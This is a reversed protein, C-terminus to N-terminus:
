VSFFMQIAQRTLEAVPGPFVGMLLTGLLCIVMGFYAPGSTTVKEEYIPEDAYMVRAVTLYYFAAVMSMILALAALWLHGAEVAGTFIFLKGVFGSLPPIGALSLLSVTMVAALFPSRRGLGALADFETSGTKVEVASVVALAGVNAFVYLMTYFLLGQLGHENLSLLGVVIYGAQAISSYALMRKINRQPIAVLNGFVITVAAIVLLVTQWQIDVNGFVHSAQVYVRKVASVVRWKSSDLVFKPFAEVFVRTMISFSAAKSGVSLFMTVPTPAGHYVDPTWMHFPVLSTKFCFGALILMIGAVTAPQVTLRAAVEGIVTTGTMAFIFSIGLLLFASSLAGLILYKLGAEISIEDNLCYATIIYFSITMLELGIYLTLMEGASSLIMMGVGAFCLFAYFEPSRLPFHQRVYPMSVLVVIFLTIIVLLKFFHSFVDAQYIGGFLSFSKPFEVVALGGIAVLGALMGAAVANRGREPLALRAVLMIIGLVALALEILVAEINM